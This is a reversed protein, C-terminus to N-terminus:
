ALRFVHQLFFPVPNQGKKSVKQMWAPRQGPFSFQAGLSLTGPLYRLIIPIKIIKLFHSFLPHEVGKQCFGEM